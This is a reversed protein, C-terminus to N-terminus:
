FSTWTVINFTLLELFINSDEFNYKSHSTFYNQKVIRFENQLAEPISNTKVSFM